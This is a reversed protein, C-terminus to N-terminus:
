QGVGKKKWANVLDAAEDKAYTQGDQLVVEYLIRENPDAAADLFAAKSFKSTRPQEVTEAKEKSM